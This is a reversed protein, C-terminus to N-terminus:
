EAKAIMTSGLIFSIGKVKYKWVSGMNFIGLDVRSLSSSRCAAVSPASPSPLSYRATSASIAPLAASFSFSSSVCANGTVIIRAEIDVYSKYRGDYLTRRRMLFKPSDSLGKAALMYRTLLSAIFTLQRPLFLPRLRGTRKVPSSEM